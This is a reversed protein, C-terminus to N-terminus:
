PKKGKFHFSQLIMKLTALFEDFTVPLDEGIDLDKIQFLAAVDDKQVLVSYLGRHDSTHNVSKDYGLYYTFTELAPAGDVTYPARSREFRPITVHPGDENYIDAVRKGEAKMRDDLQELSLGASRRINILIGGDDHGSVARKKSIRILPYGETSLGYKKLFPIAESADETGVVWGDPCDFQYRGKPDVFRQGAEAPASLLQPLISLIAVILIRPNM